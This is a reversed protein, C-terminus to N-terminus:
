QITESDTKGLPRHIRVDAGAAQGARYSAGSYIPGSDLSRTKVITKGHQDAIYQSRSDKEGVLVLSYNKMAAGIEDQMRAAKTGAAVLIDRMAEQQGEQNAKDLADSIGDYLGCFYSNREHMQSNNAQKHKRWLKTFTRHLFKYAYEAFTAASHRGIIWIFSGNYKSAGYLITVDFHRELIWRIYKDSPPRRMDGKAVKMKIEIIPEKPKSHQNELMEPKISALDINHKLAKKRALALANEVEGPNDSNKALVLLKVLQEVQDSPAEAADKLEPEEAPPATPESM